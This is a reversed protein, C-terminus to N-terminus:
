RRRLLAACTDKSAPNDSREAGATLYLVSWLGQTAPLALCILEPHAGGALRAAAMERLLDNRFQYKM